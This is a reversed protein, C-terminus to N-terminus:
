ASTPSSMAATSRIMRVALPPARRSQGSSASARAVTVSASACGFQAIPCRIVM